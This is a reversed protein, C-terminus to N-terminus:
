TTDLFNEKIFIFAERSFVITRLFVKDLIIVDPCKKWVVTYYLEKVADILSNSSSDEILFYLRGILPWLSLKRLAFIAHMEKWGSFLDMLKFWLFSAPMFFYYVSPIGQHQMTLQSIKRQQKLSKELLSCTTAQLLSLYGPLAVQHYIWSNVSKLGITLLSYHTFRHSAWADRGM